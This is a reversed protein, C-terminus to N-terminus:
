QHEQAALIDKKCTELMGIVYLSSMADGRWSWSSYIEGSHLVASIAIMKIEGERGLWESLIGRPSLSADEAVGDWDIENM